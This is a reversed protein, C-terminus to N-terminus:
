ENQIQSHRITTSSFLFLRLFYVSSNRLYKRCNNNLPYVPRNPIKEHRLVYSIIHQKHLLILHYRHNLEVGISVLAIRLPFPVLYKRRRLMEVFVFRQPLRPIRSEFTPSPFCVCVIVVLCAFLSCFM